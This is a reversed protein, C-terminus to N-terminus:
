KGLLALFAMITGVASIMIVAIVVLSRDLFQNVVREYLTAGLSNIYKKYVLSLEIELEKENLPMAESLTTYQEHMHKNQLSSIVVKMQEQYYSELFNKRERLFAKATETLSVDVKNPKSLSLSEYVTDVILRRSEVLEDLLAVHGAKVTNGSKLLGRANMENKITLLTETFAKDRESFRLKLVEEMGQDM